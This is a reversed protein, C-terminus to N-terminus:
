RTEATATFRIANEDLAITFAVKSCGHKKQIGQTQTAIYKSFQQYSIPTQQSEKSKIRILADYLQRVKEEETKPDSITIRIAEAPIKASSASTDSKPVAAEKSIVDMEREQTTRRWLDRYVYFRTVLTSFRFRQTYNMDTSESLKKVLTEVRMRLDEPPKKRNGTFFIHYEIKLRRIWDELNSLDDDYM